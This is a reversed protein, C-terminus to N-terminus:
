YLVFMLNERIRDIRKGAYWFRVEQWRSIFYKSGPSKMSLRMVQDLLGM